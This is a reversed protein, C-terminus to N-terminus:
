TQGKIAGFERALSSFGAFCLPSPPPSPFGSPLSLHPLPTPSEGGGFTTSLDLIRRLRRLLCLFRAYGISNNDRVTVLVGGKTSTDGYQWNEGPVNGINGSGLFIIFIQIRMDERVSSM